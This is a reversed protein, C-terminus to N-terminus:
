KKEVGDNLAAVFKEFRGRTLSPRLAGTTFIVFNIEQLTERLKVMTYALTLFSSFVVGMGYFDRGMMLTLQGFVLNLFLGLLFTRMSDDYNEFYQMLTGGLFSFYLLYIGLVLAPFVEITLSPAGTQKFFLLGIILCFLSILGQVEMSYLFEEWM